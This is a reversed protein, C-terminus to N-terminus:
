GNRFAEDRIKHYLSLDQGEHLVVWDIYKWLWATHNNFKGFQNLSSSCFWTAFFM